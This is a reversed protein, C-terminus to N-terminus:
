FSNDPCVKPVPLHNRVFFLANPTHFTDNLLAPPLEANYPQQNTVILAPHRTPENAWV